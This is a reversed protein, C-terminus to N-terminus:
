PRGRHPCAGGAGALDDHLEFLVLRDRHLSVAGAGPRLPLGRVNLNKHAAAVQRVLAVSMRRNPFSRTMSMAIACPPKQRRTSAAARPKTDAGADGRGSPTSRM